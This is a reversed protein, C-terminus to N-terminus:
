NYFQGTKFHRILQVSAANKASFYRQFEPSLVPHFSLFSNALACYLDQTKLARKKLLFRFKVVVVKSGM